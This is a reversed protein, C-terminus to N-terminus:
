NLISAFKLILDMIGVCVFISYIITTRRNEKKVNKKEPFPTLIFDKNLFFRSESKTNKSFPVPCGLTIFYLSHFSFFVVSRDVQSRGVTKLTRLLTALDLFTKKDTKLFMGTCKCFVVARDVQSRDVTKLTRRLAALDLFSKRDTRCFYRYM